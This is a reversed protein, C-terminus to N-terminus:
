KGELRYVVYGVHDQGDDNLKLGQISLVENIKDIMDIVSDDCWLEFENKARLEGSQSSM